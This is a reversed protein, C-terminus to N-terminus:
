YKGAVTTHTYASLKQFGYSQIEILLFSSTLVIKLVKLIHTKWWLYLQNDLVADELRRDILFLLAPM